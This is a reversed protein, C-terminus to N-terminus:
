RKKKGKGKGGGGGGGSGGGGGGGAGGTAEPGTTFGQTAGTRGRKKGAHYTSRETKKLWREPDPPPTVGPVVGKPVRRARVKRPAIPASSGTPPQAKPAANATSTSAVLLEAQPRAPAPPPATELDAANPLRGLAALFGSTIFDLHQQAAHLNNLIDEQEDALEPQDLLQNYLDCATAYDGERYCIQARLVLVSRDDQPTITDLIERAEAERQLKYLSYAREYQHQSGLIDLAGAHQDAEMMAYIKAQLADADNPDLKLIKDCTKIANKWHRDAIQAVLSNFLKKIREPESLPPKATAAKKKSKVPGGKAPAKAKSPPPM